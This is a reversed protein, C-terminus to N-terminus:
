YGTLWAERLIRGYEEVMAEVTPFRGLSVRANAALRGRLEEDRLLRGLQEAL